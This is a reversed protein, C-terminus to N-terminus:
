TRNGNLFTTLGSRASFTFAYHNWQTRSFGSTSSTYTGSSTRLLTTLRNSQIYIIFGVATLSDGLTDMIITQQDSIKETYKFLFSITFGHPCSSADPHSACSGEIGNVALYNGAGNFSLYQKNDIPFKDTSFTKSSVNVPLTGELKGDIVKDM